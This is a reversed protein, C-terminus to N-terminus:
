GRGLVVIRKQVTALTASWKAWERLPAVRQYAAFAYAGTLNNNFVQANLVGRVSRGDRSRRATFEFIQGQGGGGVATISGTRTVRVNTFGAARSLSLNRVYATTYPAPGNTAYAFEVTALGTPSSVALTNASEVVQWSRTPIWAIFYRGEWRVWQSAAVAVPAALALLLTVSALLFVPRRAHMPRLMPPARGM